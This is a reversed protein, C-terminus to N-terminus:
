TNILSHNIWECNPNSKEPGPLVDKLGESLLVGVVRQAPLDGTRNRKRVAGFIGSLSSSHGFNREWNIKSAADSHDSATNKRHQM